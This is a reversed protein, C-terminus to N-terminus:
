LFIEHNENEWDEVSPDMGGGGPTTEEPPEITIVDDILLWNHDIANPTKFVDTIDFSHQQSKGDKTRVDFTVALNNTEGDIHGFTNFIACIVPEGKDTSKMLSFYITNLPDTIRENGALRNGGAMSSLFAQASSVYELGQVKIQLYYTDLIPRAVADITWVDEHYPIYEKAHSTTILHDPEYTIIEENDVKSRYEYVISESVPSTKATIRPWSDYDSIVTSLTGFNYGLMHYTGHSIMVNGCIVPNGNPATERESIYAETVLDGEKSDYFMVHMVEQEIEPVPVEPNYIGTNINKMNTTDVEIRVRVAFAPDILPRFNCSSLTLSLAFLFCSLLRGGKRLRGTTNGTKLM